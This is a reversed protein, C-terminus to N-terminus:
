KWLKPAVIAESLMDQQRLQENHSVPNVPPPFLNSKNEWLM